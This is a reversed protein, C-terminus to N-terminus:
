SSAWYLWVPEAKRAAAVKPISSTISGASVPRTIPLHSSSATLRVLWAGARRARSKGQAGSGWKREGMSCNKTFSRTVNGRVVTPRYQTANKRGAQILAERLVADSCIQRVATRIETESEPDVLLGGQGTIEPLSSVNSAVVPRGVTQAEIVPMGFGEFTSAFVLLDCDVYARVMQELPLDISNRFELKSRDLSRRLPEDLRGVVHLKVDLGALAAIVRRQNKHSRTGVLLVEPKAERFVQEVFVYEPSICNPTLALTDEAVGTLSAVDARTSKSICSTLAARGVPAVYYLTKILWHRLGPPAPTSYAIM